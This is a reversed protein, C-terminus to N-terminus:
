SAHRTDEPAPAPGWGISIGTSRETVMLAEATCEVKFEDTPISAVLEPIYEADLVTYMPKM